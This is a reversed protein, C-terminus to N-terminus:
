LFQTIQGVGLDSGPTPKLLLIFSCSNRILNRVVPHFSFVHDSSMVKVGHSQGWSKSKLMVRCFSDSKKEHGKDTGDRGPRSKRAMERTNLSTLCMPQQAAAALTKTTEMKESM